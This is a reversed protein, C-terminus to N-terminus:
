YGLIGLDQKWKLIRIVSQDIQEVPIEKNNVADIVAKYGVAFDSCCIMDNGGKVALVAANQNEAFNGVADMTIDDSIIVGKFNLDRRIVQHVKDSLSAPYKSDIDTIVNHSVMIADAGNNIGAEFPLFDFSAFESYKRNDVSSGTHTDANDGYGPFHKLVSGLKKEKYASVTGAVFNSVNKAKDSFSRDYMFSDPNKTIDCVPGLNVNIGLSLLLDAKEKEYKIVNEMGSNDYESTKGKTYYEKPSLFPESRLNPNSSVRVVTGGEEDACVLMPYKSETQFDTIDAKIEDATKGDIDKAFLVYGGLNYQRALQPANEDPKAALFMQGVKEELSMNAEMSRLLESNPETPETLPETPAETTQAEDSTAPSTIVIEGSSSNQNDSKCATISILMVAAIIAFFYRQKKM